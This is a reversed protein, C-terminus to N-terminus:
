YHAAALEAHIEDLDRVDHDSVELRQGKVRGYVSYLTPILILVLVTAVMLGFVLTAALPILFQAQFSTETLMPTLGAITTVSTLMVPRFRTRGADMLADFLEMGERLRINIFDILVISDNVVVGTLAVLGFLTFMTLPLGMFFHGWIAGVVGFPIICLIILPQIYSRFEVTLLVFMALIAVQFGFLLSDVSEQTQEAQGEWRVSVAPFDRQLNVIFDAKLEKVIDAANAEQERIDSTITVSRKQDIRNIESYGRKVTVEALETLPYQAGDPTRVRIEEFNALSRREEKPYRVMLKVEHRGRQLRMVEEGYYSARVTQALEALSIGLSKAKEKVKIQFEWKGPKSDDRIDVVGGFEALKAKCRETAEDLQGMHEKDALLKFEIAAGGPGMNPSGFTLTEAGAIEGSAVRWEDALQQSTVSRRGSAVLEVEVKAMHSGTARGQPGVPNSDRVQGVNRLVTEVVPTGQDAYRKAVSQVAQELRLSAADTIVEPTGDPFVVTAEIQNADTKPFIIFPTKGSAVLGFSMLALSAATCGVLLPHMLCIRLVPLYINNVFKTLLENSTRSLWHAFDVLQTLPYLLAVFGLAAAAVGALGALAYYKGSMAPDEGASTSLTLWLPSPAEGSPLILYVLGLCAGILITSLFIQRAYSTQVYRGITRTLFNPEGSHALHCPLILSSEILSIVLMAVVALPMEAIFKGMVGSVFFLPTFAILTTCVSATVSPIVEVTGDIAARVGSKGKQRHAFINEGIVIADDVVIGLAMLFAFMSLMNLTKDGIMLVAGAGLVAIPIGLAVWFSLRLDLFVVLMLFVLVLGQLGNKILLNMRDRVDVSQDRWTKLEYGNPLRKEQVYNKVEDVLQLLDESRTRDVSVVLGPRGDIRSVAVVDEFADHVVGLDDVTLVVGNPQTVLPISKIEEGVLGKDKGRLLIEQTDTRMSGGPLEINQQRVLEAVQQLTLEYERLRSEPIEIDIQYPRGGTINAQSVSPLALIEDRIAETIARLELEAEVDFRDPGLVGVCIAAERFTIQEVEPDEALEPFSPIRDIASRVDNLTKQVDVYTELELVLFGSGEQAVSTQKKIGTISRVAEEIKQCIGQEVEEPSAGPYPVTVLIIELEFQPFVERKLMSMSIFGMVLIGIMVMNMAPSNKVAWKVIARM